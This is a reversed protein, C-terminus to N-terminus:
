SLHHQLAWAILEARNHANLKHLMNHVHTKVTSESIVLHQAIERNSLGRGLLRLVDRERPTLSSTAETPSTHPGALSLGGRRGSEHPLVIYGRAVLYVAQILVDPPLDQRVYGRAGGTILRFAMDTDSVMGMFLVPVDPFWTKLRAVVAEPPMSPVAAMDVLIVNPPMDLDPPQDPLQTSEGALSIMPCEDLVARLGRRLLPHAEVVYVHVPSDVEGFVCCSAVAM